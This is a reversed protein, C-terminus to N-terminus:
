AIQNPHIEFRKAMEALTEWEKLGEVAGQAKFVASFKRRSQKM